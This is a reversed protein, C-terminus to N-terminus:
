LSYRGGNAIQAAIRQANKTNETVAKQCNQNCQTVANMGLGRKIEAVVEETSLQGDGDTDIEAMEPDLDSTVEPDSDSTVEPDLDSTVEVPADASGMRQSTATVAASVSQSSFKSDQPGSALVRAFSQDTTVEEGSQQSKGSALGVTAAQRAGVEAVAATSQNMMESLM